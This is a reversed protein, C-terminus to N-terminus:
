QSGCAAVVACGLGPGVGGWSWALSIEDWGGLAASTQPGLSLRATRVSTESSSRSVTPARGDSLTVRSGFTRTEILELAITHTVPLLGDLAIATRDPM